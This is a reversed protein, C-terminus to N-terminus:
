ILTFLDPMNWSNVCMSLNVFKYRTLTNMVSFSVFQFNLFYIELFIQELEFVSVSLNQRSDM